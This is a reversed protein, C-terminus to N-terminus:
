RARTVSLAAQNQKKSAKGCNVALFIAFEDIMEFESKVWGAFHYLKILIRLKFKTVRLELRKARGDVWGARCGGRAPNKM